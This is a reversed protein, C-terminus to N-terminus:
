GVEGASTKERRRLFFAAILGLLAGAGTAYLIWRRMARFAWALAPSCDVGVNVPPQFWWTILSPALWLVAVLGLLAGLAAAFFMKKIRSM